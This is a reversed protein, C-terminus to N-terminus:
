GESHFTSYSVALLGVETESRASQQVHGLKWDIYSDIYNM